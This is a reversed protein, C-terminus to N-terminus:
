RAYYEIVRMIEVGAPIEEPLPPRAVTVKVNARDVELYPPPVIDTNQAMTALSASRQPSISVVQGPRLVYGNRSVPKGNVLVHRHTVAQKAAFISPALGSRYVVSPLRLELSCLLKEGSSGLGSKAKKYAMVLQKESLAYHARLKQKEMLLEGYGSLKNRRRTNGHMGPSFPRRVSPCKPSGWVCSGLRRCLRHKPGRKM